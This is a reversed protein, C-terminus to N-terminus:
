LFLWLSSFGGSTITQPPSVLGVEVGKRQKLLDIDRLVLSSKTQKTLPWDNAVLIELCKGTLRYRKEVTSLLRVCPSGFGFKLSAPKKKQLLEPANIKVDVFEGWPETHGQVKEHLICLLIHLWAPLRYVSSLTSIYAPRLFFAKQRYKKIVM